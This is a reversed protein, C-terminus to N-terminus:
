AASNIVVCMGSVPIRATASQMIQMILQSFSVGRLTCLIPLDSHQPHLGALPNVELFSPRGNADCRIDVRGADRCGLARFSAVALTEVSERLGAETLLRYEVLEECHEKNRYSYVEADARANLLIEMTGIAHAAAGTGLIGTTFERGPLFSEILVPQDYVQLLQAVARQLEATSRVLSAATVGKGTGEAIPKVFLPFALDVHALDELCEAVVFDPTVLGHDRVINKAVGKHLTLGCALPDSFTYPIAYSDLLAPVLSERGFGFLGECINFVLDWRDGALLHRTLAVSNGIRDVRHGLATLEQVIADITEGRDFEATQLESYGAALYDERLDYTVGVLM